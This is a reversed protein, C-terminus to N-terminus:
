PMQVALIINMNLATSVALIIFYTCLRRYIWSSAKTAVHIPFSIREESRKRLWM